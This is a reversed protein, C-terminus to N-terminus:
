NNTWIPRNFGPQSSHRPEPGSRRGPTRGTINGHRHRTESLAQERTWRLLERRPDGVVAVDDVWLGEDHATLRLDAGASGLLRLKDARVGKLRQRLTDEDEVTVRARLTLERSSTVAVTVGVARAAALALEAERDSADEGVRLLGSRLPRYRFVNAEAALGSADGSRMQQRWVRTAQAEFDAPGGAFDATWTGLSSVYNPGGAKAAPGVVSRKWGGFPHRRVIAGTIHRNVYLNGAQVRDRWHEIEAPDLSQLGATLGYAPQNQWAIAEDLDHARMLGLVPGFCETLHFPSGPRVGLKVGPSYLYGEHDLRRPAVLWGEGPGVRHLAEKLPGEPPRILPGMTTSLRWGAGPRLTRVADALQRRFRQDDYVPAELIALSVASCKQGAHGFASHALDRVAAELDAAATVVIANKGSTEAHLRLEPRWGLFMRATAWAGTLIVADVGRHAIPRRGADGDATPLFQMLEARIGAEWVAQALTWATAVTEPAPKLIVANGAALAALVGGAPIALPFNWPPVVVVTGFPTFRAGGDGALEPVREAYYRAMDIAESVEPDGEAVTKGGDRAMVALLRGRAARLADAVAHIARRREELPRTRWCAGADRAAEVAEDVLAEDAKVWRYAVRGPAGPDRGEAVEGRALTRGGIVAPVTDIGLQPLDRSMAEAIWARNTAVAFDTDPENAFPARFGDGAGASASRARIRDQTRRTAPPTAARDRVAARFRGREREWSATGPRLTFQHHLFNEPGANEDFRRILYAIVSESDARRAIPAYLLLDGAQARVAAAISPAMGELMEIEVMERVGRQESVTLAWAAEFLNHTAVGVRLAGLNDPQLALDLMRKYSADAEAKTTFPAQPLGAM